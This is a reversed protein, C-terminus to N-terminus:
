RWCCCGCADSSRPPVFYHPIAIIRDLSRKFDQLLTSLNAPMFDASAAAVVANVQSNILKIAHVRLLNSADLLFSLTVKAHNRVNTPMRKNPGCLSLTFDLLNM